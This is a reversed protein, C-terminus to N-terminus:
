SVVALERAGHYPRSVPLYVPSPPTITEATIDAALPIGIHFNFGVLQCNLFNFLSQSVRERSYRLWIECTCVSYENSYSDTLSKVLDVLNVHKQM